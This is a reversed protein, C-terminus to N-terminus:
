PVSDLVVPSHTTVIIQLDNRLALQQSELMLSKQLSPHLGTEVEDILILASKADAIKQSMRLIAREGAAMHFESYVAGNEQEALLLGRSHNFKFDLCVDTVRSYRFPLLRHAFAIQSPTFQTKQSEPVKHLMVHSMTCVGDMESPHTFSGPTILYVSREPRDSGTLTHAVDM